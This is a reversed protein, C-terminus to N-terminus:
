VKIHFYCAILMLCIWNLTIPLYDYIIVEHLNVENYNVFM